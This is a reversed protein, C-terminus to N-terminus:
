SDASSRIGVAKKALPGTAKKKLLQVVWGGPHAGQFFSRSVMKSFIGIPKSNGKATINQAGIEFQPNKASKSGLPGFFLDSHNVVM